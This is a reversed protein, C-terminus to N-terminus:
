VSNVASKESTRSESKVRKFFCAMVALVTTVVLLVALGIILGFNDPNGGEMEIGGQLYGAISWLTALPSQLFLGLALMPLAAIVVPLYDNDFVFLLAEGAIILALVVIVWPLTLLGPDTSIYRLYVILSTVSLIFVGLGIYAGISKKRLFEKM